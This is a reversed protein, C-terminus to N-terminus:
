NLLLSKERMNVFCQILIDAETEREKRYINELFTRKKEKTRRPLSPATPAKKARPRKAAAPLEDTPKQEAVPLERKKQQAEGQREQQQQLKERAKRELNAATPWNKRREERWKEVEVATMSMMKKVFPTHVIRHETLLGAHVSVKCGDVGCVVHERLHEDLQQQTKFGKGGCPDCVWQPVRQAEKRKRGGGTPMRKRADPVTSPPQQQQQPLMLTPPQPRVTVVNRNPTLATHQITARRLDRGGDKGFTAVLSRIDM